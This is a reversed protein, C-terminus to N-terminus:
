PPWNFTGAIFTGGPGPAPGTPPDGVRRGRCGGIAPDYILGPDSACDVDHSQHDPDAVAPGDTRPGWPVCRGVPGHAGARHDTVQGLVYGQPCTLPYGAHYWGSGGPPIPLPFPFQDFEDLSTIQEGAWFPGATFPDGQDGTFAQSAGRGDYLKGCGDNPACKGDGGIRGWGYRKPDACGDATNSTTGAACKEWGPFGKFPVCGNKFRLVTGRLSRLDYKQTRVDTSRCINRRALAGLELEVEGNKAKNDADIEKSDRGDLGLWKLVGNHNLDNECVFGSIAGFVPGWVGGIAKEKACKDSPPPAAKSRAYLFGAGLM